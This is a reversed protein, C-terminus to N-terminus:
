LTIRESTQPASSDSRASPDSPDAPPWFNWTGCVGLGYGKEGLLTSRRNQIETGPSTGHWNLAAALAQASGATDAEFYYVAGAPVALHTSKAGGNPRDTDNPLAWGTVVIPKPVLAAVLRAGIPQMARIRQRWAERAEGNPRRTDGSKLLVQGTKPCIWNPLWGGPHPCIHKNQQESIEPWIAPTLLIWKVAYKGNPLAQFTDTLGTPMPLPQPAEQRHATCARQQGGVLITQPHDNLLERVLDGGKKDVAQALLGLRYSERLRLYHASYIKGEAEGHGTTATAPDIAIGITPELDALEHDCLFGPLNPEHSLDSSDPLAAGTLYRHYVHLSWWPELNAGKTPPRTSAVPYSLPAPLSSLARQEARTQLPHLTTQISSSEQADCPRPYFWVNDSARHLVPFPGATTLCGFRRGNQNRNADSYDRPLSARGPVHKHVHTFGALHLAAHLAHNPLDPLPWAATHGALSGSMPRGDRFFLVDTPQLLIQHLNNM